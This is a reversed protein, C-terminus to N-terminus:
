YGTIPSGGNSAPPTFTVSAQANGPTATGITPAGPVTAPTVSNSAASPVSTGVANTATVTFTYATGNTLTTVVIPSATGTATIGGPNSTVTYGTIPSGGNSAPPTFTVSAQANGPTATGITPAGPVTAPTVSNSAASPVSTGVANTATVTFTYATGNTLTTVVIPSATGTATIGGPNSTVTYGTIPSGGNSAPPTFTVSAQANGATATGITPAGPATGAPTVSNSAASSPGAGLMNLAMVTFTYPTGNTLGPVVIPSASGTATINGPSATVMYVVIPSGGNSVPATFSVTAQSSGGVASVATPAGPVTAPTVSNSPLSAASTGLASTSTATFTYATGNVLGTITHALATTGTNADVGGAPNSTVAYGTIASGNPVGAIFSVVAQANGGVAVLATPASPGTVPTVMNSPASAAGTGNANTAKVTFTYATGNTLGPIVVPSVTGTATIAGPNSTVTYLTIPSGNAAPATFSVIAQTNGPVATVATPVGPVSVPTVSNSSVSANGTGLANTATVKFTYVTGNTLGPVTIPSASGTATLGGPTSTVTYTTIPYGGNSAPATFNVTAQTNGAVATVATPVGPVSLGAAPTVMNSPASLPGTGIANTATVTFTYGTGNTLGTVTLPGMMGTATRGGPNSTVTYATIPSGNDPAMMFNVVASANGAAATVMSAAGPVTTAGPIVSNSPVSPASTGLANTATVTFTYATGNTLGPVTIPSMMGTATIGSPNSTVTYSTGGTSPATFSVTAQTNGAVAIISTPIGPVGLIAGARPTVPDSPKSAAGTGLANTAKVTFTYATGNTLGTVTIPNTTGTQTRGGPNATVTFGTIQSSLANLPPAMFDVAAQGDGPTAMVSNPQGPLAPAMFIVPRMMDMEEHDLLHCHWVYEWGFNTWQNTVTVPNNNPDVGSFGMTSGIPMTPDLPRVSDPINFPINPTIPRLAVIADELPNMRVTDKWGLENAEPPRIAGDWGVRNILQVNFLHFHMAHTDVGNHTVKWIQVQGPKLIETPPDIYGYPITTQTNFNTFPVEVGLTANMRGYDLEFLEQIAKPEMGQTVAFGATAAAGTGAGGTFRVTPLTTYGSGGNTLWIDNVIGAITATAAAEIGGGGAIDITPASTFGTGGNTVTITAVSYSMAPTAQAGAGGGGTFNVIPSATYGAGPSTLTVTNISGTITATARAGTGGGGTFSVTPASTYGTGPNTVTVGTVSGTVVPTATAGTGGGGTITLTPIATYGSGPNTVTISTVRRNTLNARATAGAGGGGTITVTPRSTYNNGQTNVTISSVVGSGVSIATAGTGGGGTINVAPYSTYGSGGNTVTIANVSGTITATARAGTGGGGTFTVTPASTYGTGPNTLNIATILGNGLVATASAGTGGGGTISVTPVTTYGSGRATVTIANVVNTITTTAAAGTGNGGVFSVAPASTYGTGGNTLTLTGIANQAPTYALSTAQISSYTDTAATNPAPYTTQPIIPAPQSAAFAQPLATQLPVLNFAPSTGLASSVQFQMLTRTNPGYGPLTTPAGGSGDGTAYSFDPDGTYYDYRPDFAPSPAAMDNYLIIKSGDPVQSFDIIVDAREAPLLSLARRNIDLVVINRRNYEYGVPTNEIVVPAPLFGGETGIQIMKPGATTPDPVGGDRGDTPWSAPLGAGPVAPVIKVETAGGIIVTPLSTYGTGPSTITIGTVAGGTVTATATAGKGGGGVLYVGPASTYGTGGNAVTINTLSGGTIAATATAGTGGPGGSSFTVTPSASYGSGGNTITVGTVLGGAVTATALAGTGTADAINVFPATVYGSGPNTVTVGTVAGGANVAATAAAGTGGGGTDSFYLQLNLSRDNCANLIRFRYAKKGVPVYPYPTGNVLPTDMFAEMTSSNDPTGPVPKGSVPDTAVGHVLGASTTLPPWFWPGYDWRGMANAGSPDSPNQNPMYVHPYWLDGTHPTSPTTGWNWTPDQAPINAADVFTKDQIILPIGYKYEPHGATVMDQGPIALSSILGDETADTLLYGAAEGAYVNLRTIGYAHDHYFMLRASQGNPYYFTGMGDNDNPTPISKGAGVMDPVNQFSIGKPYSTVEGAPTVWQHPTGDSIWPTDGGHLHLTARNQTYDMGGVPPTMGLPGMGAGMMTTDVPLFLNGAMGTGLMNVFKIRTPVGKRAIIIPGLYHNQADTGTAQLDKYGRFKTAPLDSHVQQTYDTLGIQYYNSGPYATTNAVAIPIYNGLNNRNAFGLGPLSDVFKRIVPTNAYNPYVGGIYDPMGGPANYPAALALADFGSTNAIVALAFITRTLFSPKNM